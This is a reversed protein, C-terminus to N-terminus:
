FIFPHSSFPASIFLQLLIKFWFRNNEDDRTELLCVCMEFEFQYQLSTLAVFFSTPILGCYLIFVVVVFYLHLGQVLSSSLLEVNFKFALGQEEDERARYIHVHVHVHVSSSFSSSM